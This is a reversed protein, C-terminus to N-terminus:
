ADDFRWLKITGDDGCSALIETNVPNWSVCNIDCQHAKEKSLLLELNDNRSRFLKISDDGSGTAVINSKSWAVSYICRKHGSVITKKKKVTIQAKAAENLEWLFFENCNDGVSCFLNGTPNFALDWVTSTHGETGGVTEVCNWETSMPDDCMWVKITDDYSVSLLMEKTPHWVINKVDQTHGPCVSVCEFDKEDCMEWIWVTKDRSCTALLPTAGVLSWKVSKVENEHGEITAVLEYEGNTSVEYVSATSDFSCAALYKGDPSFDVRRIAKDHVGSLTQTNVWQHTNPNEKWIKVCRDEGCSALSKGNISWSLNWVRCGHAQIETLLELNPHTTKM